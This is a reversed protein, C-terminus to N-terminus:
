KMWVPEGQTTPSCDSPCLSCKQYNRGIPYEKSLFRGMDELPRALAHSSQLLRNQDIIADRSFTDAHHCSLIWWPSSQQYRLRKCTIKPRVGDLTEQPFHIKKEELYSMCTSLARGTTGSLQISKTITMIALRQHDEWPGRTSCYITKMENLLRRV